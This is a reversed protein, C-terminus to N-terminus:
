KPRNTLMKECIRWRKERNDYYAIQGCKWDRLARCWPIQSGDNYYDIGYEFMNLILSIESKVLKVTEDKRM